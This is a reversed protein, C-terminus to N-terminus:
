FQCFRWLRLIAVLGVHIPICLCFENFPIHHVGGDLQDCGIELDLQEMLSRDASVRVKRCSMEEVREPLVACNRRGEFGWCPVIFDRISSSAGDRLAREWIEADDIDLRCRKRRGCCCLSINWAKAVELDERECGAGACIIRGSTGGGPSCEPGNIDLRDSRARGDREFVVRLVHSVVNGSKTKPM